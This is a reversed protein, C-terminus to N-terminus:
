TKDNTSKAAANDNPPAPKPRVRRWLEGVAQRALGLLGRLTLPDYAVLGHRERRESMWTAKYPDDGILYDVEQVRDQDLAHAMLLATVLTGSTLAKYREDYAVKVINARGHATIWIQAATPVGDLWAVGLRLWGRRACLRILGPVFDPYPETNKWSNAYVSQFADIGAELRDGGQIIELTGGEQAFRKGMRKITNRMKSSRGKLYNEWDQNVPEYWNGFAFYSHVSLRALSLARRLLTFERSQPDMPAFRYAAARGSQRRLVRTLPMLDAAEVDAALAPAYIATYFNSLASVERGLSGNQAVTPLVALVRGQRRLVHIRVEPKSAERAYVTDILNAYWDAGFEVRQQEAQSMLALADPPLEHVHVYTDVTAGSRHVMIDTDVPRAGRRLVQRSGRRLLGFLTPLGAHRYVSVHQIWRQSTSWALLDADANTYFEVVAGPTRQFLDELTRLLLVRGPAFREFREDFATKLMVAMGPRMLLMRSALLQDDLWLEYVLAEGRAAFDRMVDAYFRGQPTDSSVATGERGKWGRCELDAYRAVAAGMDERTTVVVLRETGGEAQLRRLYRRMNQILKRPRQAWYDDFSERLAVNMTLAHPLVKTPNGPLDRWDGFRPDNCLLDLESAYGPLADFLGDLPTDPSLLSPGIQAQAPLFSAWVGLGRSEGHLLLMAVPEGASTAVALQAGHDGFHRLLAEVFASDLMGHGRMLRANLMDWAGRHPGLGQSPVLPHLQWDLGSNM